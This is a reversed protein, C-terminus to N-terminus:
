RDEGFDKFISGRYPSGQEAELSDFPMEPEDEGHFDLEREDLDTPATKARRQRRKKERWYRRTEDDPRGQRRSFSPVLWAGTTQDLVMLGAQALAQLSDSLAPAELHLIWAIQELSLPKGSSTLFGEADCEGALALMQVFRWKLDDPLRYLKPEHLIETYLKIWPLSTMSWIIYFLHELKLVWPPSDAPSFLTLGNPHLPVAWAHARLRAHWRTRDNRRLLFGQSTDM